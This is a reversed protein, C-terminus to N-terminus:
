KSTLGKWTLRSRATPPQPHGLEALVLRFVKAEQANLFLAGLKAEAASGAVLKTQPHHM